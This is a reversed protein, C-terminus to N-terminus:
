RIIKAAHLSPWGNTRMTNSRSSTRPVSRTPSHAASKFGKGIGAAALLRRPYCAKRRACRWNGDPSGPVNMRAEAGLNLVDQFPALALTAVSSWALEM